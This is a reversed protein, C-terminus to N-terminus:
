EMQVKVNRMKLVDYSYVERVVVILCALLPVALVLGLAGLAMTVLLQFLMLFGAPINLQAKVVQPTIINSETFQIALYVPIYLLLKAPDDYALTFIGIPIIPLVAGINPIFTAFGAFLAVVMANPMRLIVGLILWVLLVIVTVSFLQAQLWKTLTVYLARLVQKTRAHKQPPVLYLLATVYSGPDLLFFIAIFLVLGLHVLLGAILGIGGLLDPAIAMGSKVLWQFMGKLSDADTPAAANAEPLKPMISQLSPTANWWEAYAIKGKAAAAPVDSVLEAVGEALTPIVFLSVLSVALLSAVIALTVAVGRQCGKKQLMLMPQAIAIAIVISAFALLLISRTSWLAAALSLLLVTALVRKM